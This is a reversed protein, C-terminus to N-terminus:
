KGRIAGTKHDHDVCTSENKHGGLILEVGCIACQGEQEDVLEEFEEFSIKHNYQINFKQHYKIWRVKNKNKCKITSKKSCLKCWSGLQNRHGKNEYFREKSLEQKCKACKITKKDM